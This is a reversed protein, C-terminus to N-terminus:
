VFIQLLAVYSYLGPQNTAGWSARLLVVSWESVALGAPVTFPAFDVLTQSLWQLFQFITSQITDMSVAQQNLSEPPEKLWCFGAGSPLEPVM